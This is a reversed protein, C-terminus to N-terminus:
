EAEFRDVHIIDPSSGEESVALTVGVETIASDPDNSAICLLAEHDGVELGTADVEVSVVQSDFPAVSDSGPDINLWDISVPDGCGSTEATDATWTLTQTGHNAITLLDILGGNEPVALELSAPTVVAVPHEPVEDHVTMTVPLEVLMSDPDNTSLCLIGAYTGPGLDSSDVQVTVEVSGGPQISGGSPGVELWSIDHANECGPEQPITIPDGAQNYAWGVITLPFGALNETVIRAYGYNIAGGQDPNEFVFGLYGEVGLPQHWNASAPLGSAAWFQDVPPGVTDGRELVAYATEGPRVLGGAHSKLWRPWTFYMQGGPAPQVSMDSPPLGGFDTDGTHWQLGHGFMSAEPRFNVDDFYVIDDTGRFAQPIAQEIQWNLPLLGINSIELVSSGVAGDGLTFSFESRSIEAVPLDGEEVQVNVPIQVMETQPDNSEICLMAEHLGPSLGTANVTVDVQQSANGELYGFAPSVDLWPVEEPLLCPSGGVGYGRILWNMPIYSDILSLEEAAALDPPDAVIGGPFGAAVWSRYRSTANFDGAIVFYEDRTTRNVVGILLDGTSEDVHVGEEIKIENFGDVVSVAQGTASALLNVTGYPNGDPAGWVYVDFEDGVQVVGGPEPASPHFGVEVTTLTFPLEHTRPTFRNFWLFQENGIGLAVVGVSVDDLVLEIPGGSMTERSGPTLEFSDRSGQELAYWMTEDGLNAVSFSQTESHSQSISFDIADADTSIEPPNLDSGRIAVTLHQEPVKGDSENLLVEGFAVLSTLPESPTATITIERTEDPNGSFSFTAPSVDIDFGASVAHATASWSSPEALTNRVTRTWSCSTTCHVDRVSPLNLDELDVLAIGFPNADLFRDTAEDMVLGAQIAGTVDLRGSGVDDWDWPTQGDQKHGSRSATMRLASTVENASWGPHVDRILLAAGAVLPSSMSTGSDPMYGPVSEAAYDVTVSSGSNANMFDTLALSDARSLGGVPIGVEDGLTDVVPWWPSDNWIVVLEAGAEAANTIKTVPDCGGFKVLAVASDFFNSPFSECGESDGPQGSDRLLPADVLPDGLPSHSGPYFVMNELQGPVSEPGSVSLFHRTIASYMGVGPATVDPKQLNSLLGPTPGRLSFDALVDGPAPAGEEDVDYTSAAVSMVWPGLHGVRGHPSSMSPNLNGAAAVVVIGADVLDLKDRDNDSWPSTGGSISFNVVDADGDLLM